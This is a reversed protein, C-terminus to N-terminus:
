GLTRRGVVLWPSINTADWPVLRLCKDGLMRVLKTPRPHQSPVPPPPHM